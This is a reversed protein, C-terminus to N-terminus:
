GLPQIQTSPAADLGALVMEDVDPGVAACTTNMADALAAPVLNVVFEGTELINRATDKWGRTADRLLGIAVTPLTHGMANFFSYPAANVVGNMGLTSIWAIPRPTITSTLLKYGIEPAIKDFEFLM